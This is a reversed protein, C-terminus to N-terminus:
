VHSVSKQIESMPEEPRDYLRHIYFKGSEDKECIWALESSKGEFPIGM